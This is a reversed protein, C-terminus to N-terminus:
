PIDGCGTIFVIPIEINSRKLEAQLDLMRGPLRM